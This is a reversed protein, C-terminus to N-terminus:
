IILNKGKKSTSKMDFVNHNPLENSAKKSFARRSDKFETPIQGEVIGILELVEL